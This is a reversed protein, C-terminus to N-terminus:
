CGARVRPVHRADTHRSARKRALQALVRQDNTIWLGGGPKKAAYQPHLLGDPVLTVRARAAGDGGTYEAAKLRLLLAAHAPASTGQPLTAHTVTCRRLPTGLM